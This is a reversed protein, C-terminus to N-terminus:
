ARPCSRAQGRSSRSTQTLKDTIREPEDGARYGIARLLVPNEDNHPIDDLETREGQQGEYPAPLEGYGKQKELSYPLRDAFGGAVRDYREGGRVRPSAHSKAELFRQVLDPGKEAWREEREKEERSWVTRAYRLISFPEKKEENRRSEGDTDRDGRTEEKGMRISELELM